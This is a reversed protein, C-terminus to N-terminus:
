MPVYGLAGSWPQGNLTAYVSIMGRPQGTFNLTYVIAGGAPLHQSPSPSIGTLTAGIPGGANYSLTYPGSPMGTFNGPIMNGSDTKAGILTYNISGSGAATRWPQGDVVANVMITGYQQQQVFNMSFVITRGGSLAQSPNPTISVLTSVAPGGGGYTLTYTGAPVNSLMGLVANRPANVQGSISYNVTGSWPVGNLTANILINSAQSRYFNFTYVISGGSPLIQMATPTIGGLTAPTPGGYSYLLTYAGPPVNSFTRPVVTDADNFPGSFSYNISGSWPAGDLTANVMITSSSQRHFNLTFHVTGGAQLAQSPSPTVSTLMAGSPGGYNYTLIYNGAPVDSFSWPLSNDTDSFPGNISYNVSGSWPSGDVTASVRITGRNSPPAGGPTLFSWAASWGSALNGRSGMVRWYYTTDNNLRGSPVTYLPEGLNSTDVAMEQFNSDAAVQLRYNTAGGSSSWALIPSLSPMSSGSAPSALSVTIALVPVCSGLVFLVVLLLVAFKRM